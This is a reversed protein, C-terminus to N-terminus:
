KEIGALARIAPEFTRLELQGVFREVIRGERDIVVTMPMGDIEGFVRHLAPTAMAIPYSVRLAEAFRRVGDIPITDESIGIVQLHREYKRQLNSLDPIEARCPSCWTAWFNVVVVKGRLNQSRIVRGDLARAEFEVAPTTQARATAPAVSVVVVIGIGIWRAARAHFTAM